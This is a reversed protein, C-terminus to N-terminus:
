PQNSESHGQHDEMGSKKSKKDAKGSKEEKNSGPKKIMMSEVTKKSKQSQEYTRM